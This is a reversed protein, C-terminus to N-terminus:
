FVISLSAQYPVIAASNEVFDKIAERRIQDHFESDPEEFTEQGVDEVPVDTPAEQAAELMAKYMDQLDVFWPLMEMMKQQQKLTKAEDSYSIRDAEVLHATLDAFEEWDFQINTFAEEPDDLRSIRVGSEQIHVEYSEQGLRVMHYAEATEGFETMINKLFAAKELRPRDTTYIRCLMQKLIDVRIKKAYYAEGIDLIKEKARELKDPGEKAEERGQKQEEQPEPDGDIALDSVSEFPLYQRQGILRHIEESVEEWHWYAEYMSDGESWLLYLGDRGGEFSLFSEPSETRIENEGYIEHLYEKRDEKEPNYSFFTFIDRKQADETMELLIRKRLEETIEGPQIDSLSFPVAEATGEEMNEKSQVETIQESSHSGEARDRRSGDGGTDAPKDNEHHRLSRRTGGEDMSEAPERGSRRANEGGTERSGANESSTNRDPADNRVPGSREGASEQSGDQRVQEAGGASESNRYDRAYYERRELDIAKMSKSIEFLARGSLHSILRGARYLIEENQYKSILSLDMERDTIGCRSEVAYVASNVIFQTIDMEQISLDTGTLTQLRELMETIGDDGEIMSWVYTRTFANLSKKFKKEKEYIDPFLMRALQRRNTGNVSWNWPRVGTGCTDTVDFVYKVNQGFLKSPFIAIGKSGYRVPLDMEKWTDFGALVTAGPRQGYVMCTNLFDLQYLRGMCRLFDKWSDENRSIAAITKEYLEKVNTIHSM